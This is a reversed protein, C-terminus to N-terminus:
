QKTEKSKCKKPRKNDKTGDSPKATSTTVEEPKANTTSSTSTKSTNQHHRQLYKKAYSHSSSYCHTGESTTLCIGNENGSIKCDTGNSRRQDYWQNATANYCYYHCVRVPERENPDETCKQGKGNFYEAGTGQLLSVLLLLFATMTCFVTGCSSLLHDQHLQSRKRPSSCFVM